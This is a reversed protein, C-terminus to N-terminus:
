WMGSCYEGQEGSKAALLRQVAPVAYALTKGSGTRAQACVDRGALALPLAAAQIRTPYVHGLRAVAKFVRADLGLDAFPKSRELFSMSTNPRTAHAAM